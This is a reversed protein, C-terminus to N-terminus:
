GSGSSPSSSRASSSSLRGTATFSYGVHIHDAHDSLAFTPPGGAGDALDAPGPADDGAAGDPRPAGVRHDLGPGPKRAIPIGNVAAIDVAAGYSHASVIGCATYRVTGAGSRPSRSGTARRSWTSSCRWRGATSRAPRSTPAAATMSRSGRTRGAGAADAVGEVDPPDPRGLRRRRVPGAQARYIATSELLKWGDLIPKPDIEPRGPGGPPDLVRPPRARRRRRGVRGIVSGGTLHSGDKLPRLEMTEPTSASARPSPPRSPRMARCGSASSPTSPEPSGPGPAPNGPREPHAFLRDRLAEANRAGSGGQRRRRRRAEERGEGPGSNDGASAPAKPAADPKPTTLKFDAATLPRQRPVPHAREVRGLGAYTYTNGYVDEIVVYKGLRPSNGMRRVVADNVAVVPSGPAAYINIARRAANSGSLVDAANGPAARATTSRELAVADSIDDAYRADAAVPFHAGETLGTLSGLLADPLKGYANAYLLVEDVYWDAHNYAFIATRLSRRGARRGCTAPPPASRTSRTTPTRKGDSNADVGYAAWTSPIFQMWGEAGASSVKLNTGFATEIKNISALM